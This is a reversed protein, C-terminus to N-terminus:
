VGLGLFKEKALGIPFEMICGKVPNVIQSIRLNGALSLLLGSQADTLASHKQLFRHMKQAAITSCNDLSSDASTTIYHSETVIFPTPIDQGDKIVDVKVTVEGSMELACIVTEGDGQVGHIDGMSLLAGPVNVPLYISAGVGLDKIDLNGGHEGPSQTSMIENKPATGIVGIMPLIPIRIENDFVVLGDEIPFRRCHCGEIEYIGAGTRACMSGSSELDIAKIEVRLVDGPEAGRVYLPGTAPNNLQMNMKNFDFGDMLIQECYCDQCCFKVTDGSEAYDAPPITPDFAFHIQEKKINIM